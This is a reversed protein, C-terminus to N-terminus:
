VVATFLGLCYFISIKEGKRRWNATVKVDLGDLKGLSLVESVWSLNGM